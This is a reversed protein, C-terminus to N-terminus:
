LDFPDVTPILEAVRRRLRADRTLLGVHLHLALAIYEADYTKAWGLRDALAWAELVLGAHDAHRTVPAGLLEDLARRGLAQSLAGRWVQQHVASAVESWFLAPAHLEHAVLAGFGRASVAVYAGASADLVLRV